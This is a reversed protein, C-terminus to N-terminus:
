LELLRQELIFLEKRREIIDLMMVNKMPYEKKTDTELLSKVREIRKIIEARSM